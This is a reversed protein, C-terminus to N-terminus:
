VEWEGYSRLASLFENKIEKDKIWQSNEDDQCKKNMTVMQKIERGNYLVYGLRKKAFYSMWLDEIFQYKRNFAFFEPHAFLETDIAMAGTGGYDLTDHDEQSRPNMNSWGQVYSKGQFKRGYWHYGSRPKHKDLVTEVFKPSFIQDDDIFIIKDGIGGENMLRRVLVFRGIGGINEPSHCWSINFEAGGSHIMSELLDSKNKNNNWLYLHINKITQNNLSRITEEFFEVRRWQCMVINTRDSLESIKRSKLEFSAHAEYDFTNSFLM